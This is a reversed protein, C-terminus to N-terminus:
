LREAVGREREREREREQAFLLNQLKWMTMVRHLFTASLHFKVLMFYKKTSWNPVTQLTKGVDNNLYSEYFFTFITFNFTFDSKRERLDVFKAHTTRWFLIILSDLKKVATMIRWLFRTSRTKAHKTFNKFFSLSIHVTCPPGAFRITLFQCLWLETGAHSWRAM